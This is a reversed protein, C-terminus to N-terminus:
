SEDWTRWLRRTYFWILSTIALAVTAILWPQTPDYSIRYGMWASLSSYTLRGGPLALSEGLQMDYFRENHNIVLRNPATNAGLNERQSGPAPPIRETSMSVWVQPGQPIPWHSGPTYGDEGIQGLQITAVEIAAADSQWRLVPAFGRNRSTYIRYGDLVLPRDDGIVSGHWQGASDAFRIRNRTQRYPNRQPFVEIFGDNAFRLAKAGDGHLAGREQTRLEGAFHGGVVVKATGEFYTLRAVALLAVFLVLSAHFLLLPLDTRFRAHIAISATLNLMLLVLPILAAPTPELLGNAIALAAIAMLVFFVVMLRPSALARLSAAARNRLPPMVLIRLQIGHRRSGWFM